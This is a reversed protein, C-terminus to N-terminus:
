AHGDSRIRDARRDASAGSARESFTRECGAADLQLRRTQKDTSVKPYGPLVDLFTDAVKKRSLSNEVAKAVSRLTKGTEDPATAFVRTEADRM